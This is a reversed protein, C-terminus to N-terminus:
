STQNLLSIITVLKKVLLKKVQESAQFISGLEEKQKTQYKSKQKSLWSLLM